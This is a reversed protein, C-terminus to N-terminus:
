DFLASQGQSTAFVKVHSHGAKPAVFAKVNDGAGLFRVYKVYEQSRVFRNAGQMDAACTVDLVGGRSTDAEGVIFRIDRSKLRALMDAGTSAMLYSVRNNLGYHYENFDPCNASSPPAFGDRKAKMRDPTIYMYSGPSGVVFRFNLSTLQEPLKTGLMFRQVFQGGGSFGALIVKKLKSFRAPNNLASILTDLAAYSSLSVDSTGQAVHGEKWGNDGWSLDSALPKDENKMFHPAIVWTHASVSNPGSHTSVAAQISDFYTSPNRELGHVIIVVTEIDQAAKTLDRNSVYVLNKGAAVPFRLVSPQKLAPTDDELIIPLTEEPIPIPITPITEPVPIPMVSDPIEEVRPESPSEKDGISEASSPQERKKDLRDPGSDRCALGPLAYFLVSLLIRNLMPDKQLKYLLSIIETYGSSSKLKPKEQNYGM